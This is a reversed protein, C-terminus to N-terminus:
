AILKDTSYLYTQMAVKHKSLNPADEIKNPNRGLVHVHAGEEILSKTTALGIGSTGGIVIATKNSFQM